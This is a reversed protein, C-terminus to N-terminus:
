SQAYMVTGWGLAAPRESDQGRPLTRPPEEATFPMYRTRGDWISTSAHAPIASLPLWAVAFADAQEREEGFHYAVLSLDLVRVM